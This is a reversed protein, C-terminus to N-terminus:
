VVVLELSITHRVGGLPEVERGQIIGAVAPDLPEVESGKVM